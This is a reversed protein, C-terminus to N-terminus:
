LRPRSLMEKVSWIADQRLEIEGRASKIRAVYVDKRTREHMPQAIQQALLELEELTDLAGPLGEAYRSMLSFERQMYQQAGLWDHRQNMELARRMVDSQWAKLAVLSREHDRPQASNVHGEAFRLEVEEERSRLEGSDDPMQAHLVASARVQAGVRSRPCFVRIVVRKTQDPALSGVQVALTGMLETASWAGVVEAREAGEISVRIGPDSTPRGTPSSSSVIRLVRTRPNVYGPEM